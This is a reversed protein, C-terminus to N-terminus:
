LVGKGRRLMWDLDLEGALEGKRTDDSIAAEEGALEAACKANGGGDANTEANEMVQLLKYEKREYWKEMSTIHHLDVFSLLINNETSSCNKQIPINALWKSGRRSDKPKHPLMKANYKWSCLNFHVNNNLLIKVM